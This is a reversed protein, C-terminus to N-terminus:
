RPGQGAPTDGDPNTQQQVSPNLAQDSRGIVYIVVVQSVAVIVLGVVAYLLSSRASAVKGSDGGSTVFKIGAIIIMIVAIVGAIFSLTNLAFSIISDISSSNDSSNCEIFSEGSDIALGECAENTADEFQASVLASQMVFVSLVMVVAVSLLKYIKM